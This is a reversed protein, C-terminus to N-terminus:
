ASDDRHRVPFAVVLFKRELFLGEDPLDDVFGDVVADAAREEPELPEAPPEARRERDQDCGAEHRPRVDHELHEALGRIEFAVHRLDEFLLDGHRVVVLEPEAGALALVLYLLENEVRARSLRGLHADVDRM